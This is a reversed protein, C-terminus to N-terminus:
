NKQPYQVLQVRMMERRLNALSDMVLGISFSLISLIGLGVCMVATPM